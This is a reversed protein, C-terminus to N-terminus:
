YKYKIFNHNIVTKMNIRENPNIKLCDKILNIIEPNIKNIIIKELLKERILPVNKIISKYIGNENNIDIPENTDCSLDGCKKGDKFLPTREVLEYCVCGFSWIDINYSYKECLIIEPARYWRTAIHIPMEKNYIYDNVSVSIGFDAIKILCNSCNILINSPKIDAHIINLSHIYELGDLIQKCIHRIHSNSLFQNSRIVNNLDTDMCEFIMGYKDIGDITIYDFTNIINKHKNPQKSLINLINLENNGDYIIKLAYNTNNNSIKYVRGNSGSGIYEVVANKINRKIIFKEIIYESTISINKNVYMINNQQSSRKYRKVSRNYISNSSIINKEPIESNSIISNNTQIIESNSIVSDNIEIIESNSIVSDNKEIIESNSIVSDNKEIIESNSIVSDNKEIIESNSIVSDDSSEDSLSYIKTDIIDYSSEDNEINSTDDFYKEMSKHEKSNNKIGLSNLILNIIYSM